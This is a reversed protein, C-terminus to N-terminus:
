NLRLIILPKMEIVRAKKNDDWERVLKGFKPPEIKLRLRLSRKYSDVSNLGIRYLTGRWQM